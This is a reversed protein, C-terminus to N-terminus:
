PHVQKSHDLQDAQDEQPDDHCRRRRQSKGEHQQQGDWHPHQNQGAEEGPSLKQTHTGGMVVDDFLTAVGEVVVLVVLVVVIGVVAVVMVVVM